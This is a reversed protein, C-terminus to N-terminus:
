GSLAPGVDVDRVGQDHGVRGNAHGLLAALGHSHQAHVKHGLVHARDQILCAELM